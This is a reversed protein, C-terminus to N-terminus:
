AAVAEGASRFSVSLVGFLTDLLPVGFAGAVLIFSAKAETLHMSHQISATTAIAWIVFAVISLFYFYWRPRPVKPGAQVASAFLYLVNALAGLALGFWIWDGTPNFAAFGAASVSVVEAPVYKVLKTQLSDPQPLQSGSAPPTVAGKAAVNKRVENRIRGRAKVDLLGPNSARKAAQYAVHFEPTDYVVTRAM